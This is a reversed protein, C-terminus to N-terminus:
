EAWAFRKSIQPLYLIFHYCHSNKLFFFVNRLSPVKVVSTFCGMTGLRWNNKKISLLFSEPRFSCCYHHLQLDRHQRFDDVTGTDKLWYMASAAGDLLHTACRAGGSLLRPSLQSLSSSGRQPRRSASVDTPTVSPSHRERM